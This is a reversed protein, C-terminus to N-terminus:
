QVCYLINIRQVRTSSKHPHLSSDESPPLVENPDTHDDFYALEDPEITSHTKISSDINPESNFSHQGTYIEAEDDILHEDIVEQKEGLFIKYVFDAFFCLAFILAITRMDAM